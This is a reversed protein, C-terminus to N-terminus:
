DRVRHPPSFSLPEGLGPRCKEGRLLAEMEEPTIEQGMLIKPLAFGCHPSCSCVYMRLAERVTGRHCSPCRGLSRYRNPQEPFGLTGDTRIILSQRLPSGGRGTMELVPTERGSLLVRVLRPTIPTGLFTGPLSFACLPHGTCRYGEGDARVQRSCLPCTGLRSRLALRAPTLMSLIAKTERIVYRDIEQGLNDGYQRREVALFKEEWHRGLRPSLFDRQAFCRMFELASRTPIYRNKSLVLFQEQLSLLAEVRAAPSGLGSDEMASLLTAPTHRLPPLSKRTLIEGGTRKVRDGERLIPCPTDGGKEGQLVLHGPDLVHIGETRFLGEGCRILIHLRLFRFPPLLSALFRRAILEYLQKWRRRMNQWSPSVATPIIAWRQWAEAQPAGPQEPEGGYEELVADALDALRPVARLAGLRARLDGPDGSPLARSETRPRTILGHEWLSHLVQLVREPREQFVRNAESLLDTLSFPKPPPEVVVQARVALVTAYQPLGNLREQVDRRSSFASRGPAGAEVCEGQFVEGRLTEFSGKLEWSLTPTFTRIERERHAVLKLIPPELPAIRVGHGLVRAAARSFFASVLWDMRQRLCAARRLGDEPEVPTLHRLGEEVDRPALSSAQFRLVPLELGCHEYFGWFMREGQPSCDCANILARFRCRRLIEELEQLGEGEVGTWPIDEPMRIEEWCGEPLAPVQRIEMRAPLDEPLSAFRIRLPYDKLGVYVRHIATATRRRPAILLLKM